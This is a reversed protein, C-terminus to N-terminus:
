SSCRERPWASYGHCSPSPWGSRPAEWRGALGEPVNQVGIGIALSIGNGIDTGAFDVGVAMGEPFNHLSIAIVFLWVRELGRAEPGKGLIFHEHPAHRHALLLTIAGLLLGGAVIAVALIRSGFQAEAREIAPLLLSFFTAALM